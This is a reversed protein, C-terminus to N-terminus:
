CVFHFSQSYEAWLIGAVASLLVSHQCVAPPIRLVPSVIFMLSVCLKIYM